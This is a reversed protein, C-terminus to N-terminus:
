KSMIKGVLSLRHTEGFENSEFIVMVKNVTYICWKAGCGRYFLPLKEAYVSNQRVRYYIWTRM